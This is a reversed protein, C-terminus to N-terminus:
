EKNRRESWRRCVNQVINSISDDIRLITKGRKERIKIAKKKEVVEGRKEIIM